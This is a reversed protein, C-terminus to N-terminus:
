RSYGYAVAMAKANGASLPPCTVAIAVNPASAPLPRPFQVKLPTGALAVGAPVSFPFTISGGLLGSVTVDVLAAATAGGAHVEFGSIYCTEGAVAPISAIATNNAVEGSWYRSVFSALDDTPHPEWATGAANLQPMLQDM